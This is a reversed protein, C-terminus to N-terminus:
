LIYMEAKLFLALSVFSFRLSNIRKGQKGYCCYFAIIAPSFFFFFFFTLQSIVCHVVVVDMPHLHVCRQM